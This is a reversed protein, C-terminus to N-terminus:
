AHGTMGRGYDSVLVADAARLARQAELPLAGVRGPEGGTDVRLLSQGAARVRRKTPTEGHYDIPILTVDRLLARLRRAPEDSGLPTVLTVECGDRAALTAALGAGGPRALEAVQDVVPVPADPSVREVRGLLDLDLLCDGVVALRTM